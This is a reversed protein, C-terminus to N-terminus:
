ASSPMRSRTRDRPSPSTYLLCNFYRNFNDGVKEFILGKFKLERLKKVQLIRLQLFFLEEFKLRVTARTKQAEDDPLHIWRYAHYRPCLKLTEVLKAPLVEPFHEPRLIRWINQMITRRVRMGVSKHTLKETSPYVPLFASQQSAKSALEMEPHSISRKGKYVNVKGFLVYEHDVKLSEAIWKAGQFWTLEILGSPDKFVGKLRTRGKGKMPTLSVLIGKLQVSDGKRVDKLM